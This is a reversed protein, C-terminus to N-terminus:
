KFAAEEIGLVEVQSQGVKLRFRYLGRQAPGSLRAGDAVPDFVSFHCPCVVLPHDSEVDPAVFALDASEALNVFCLEHPCQLCFAKLETAPGTRRPVRLLVGKLLVDSPQRRAPEPASFLADFMLPRWPEAVKDLPLHIPTKPRRYPTTGGSLATAFASSLGLLGLCRWLMGRRHM